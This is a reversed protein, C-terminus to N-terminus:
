KPQPVSMLKLISDRQTKTINATAQTSTTAAVTGLKILKQVESKTLNENVPKPATGLRILNDLGTQDINNTTSNRFFFLYTAILFVAVCFIIVWQKKTLSKLFDM